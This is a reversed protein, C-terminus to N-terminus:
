RETAPASTDVLIRGKVSGWKVKLAGDLLQRGTSVTEGGTTRYRVGFFPAVFQTANDQLTNELLVGLECGSPSLLSLGKLAEAAVDLLRNTVPFLDQDDLGEFLQEFRFRCRQGQLAPMLTALVGDAQEWIPPRHRSEELRAPLRLEEALKDCSVADWRPYRDSATLTSTSTILLLAAFVRKGM